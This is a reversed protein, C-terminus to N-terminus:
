SQLKVRHQQLLLKYPFFNSADTFDTAFSTPNYTGDAATDIARDSGFEHV